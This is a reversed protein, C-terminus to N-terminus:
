DFARRMNGVTIHNKDLAFSMDGHFPTLSVIVVVAVDELKTGVAFQKRQCPVHVCRQGFADKLGQRPCSSSANVKRAPASSLWRITLQPRSLYSLFIGARGM